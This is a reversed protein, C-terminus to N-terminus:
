VRAIYDLQVGAESFMTESIRSQTAWPEKSKDPTPCVVRSIGAQIILVACRACPPLPTVYLACGEAAPGAFLLANAEAHVVMEYKIERTELRDESDEVGAPFGNFGMSVVRKTNANAIVAGVQTSPDKSWGAVFNALDMFRVDWKDLMDEREMSEQGLSTVM